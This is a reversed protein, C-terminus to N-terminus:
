DDSLTRQWDSCQRDSTPRKNIWTEKGHAQAEICVRLCRYKTTNGLLNSSMELCLDETKLLVPPNKRPFELIVESQRTHLIEFCERAAAISASITQLENVLETIWRSIPLLSDLVRM